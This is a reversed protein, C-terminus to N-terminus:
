KGHIVGSTAIYLRRDPTAPATLHHDQHRGAGGRLAARDAGPRDPEPGAPTPGRVRAPAAAPVGGPAGLGSRQIAATLPLSSVPSM